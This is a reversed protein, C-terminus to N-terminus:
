VTVLSRGFFCLEWFFNFIGVEMNIIRESERKKKKKNKM